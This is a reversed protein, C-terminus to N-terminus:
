PSHGIPPKVGYSRVHEWARHFEPFTDRDRYMERGERRYHKRDKGVPCVKICIGCPAAYRRGLDSSMRACAHTDTIDGPYEGPQLASSPCHRVCQMCRTCLPDTIVPRGAPLDASTFVSGFRVRPGYEPTLLMNNVGFTGLGALYAAHRHSFFAVPNEILVDISGYGDRPVFVSPYGQRNLFEALRYTYQDLLSNIVLYQERYWISPSTELVPLPVPLGIVLVSRTEPFIADPFFEEPIWPHFMPQRWRDVPAIGALPIEMARCRRLVKKELNGSAQRAPM